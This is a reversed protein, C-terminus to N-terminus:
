KKTHIKFSQNGAKVVVLSVDPIEISANGLSSAKTSDLLRGDISYLMVPASADLGSIVLQNGVTRIVVRSEQTKVEEVGTPDDYHTFRFKFNWNLYNEKEITYKGKESTIILSTGSHSIVPNTDFLFYTYRAVRIGDQDAMDVIEIANYDTAYDYHAPPNSAKPQDEVINMDKWVAAARYAKGSGAPVHVNVKNYMWTANMHFTKETIPLPTQTYLYLDKLASTYVLAEDEISKVSAPITLKTLENGFAHSRISTVTEPVGVSYRVKDEKFGPRYNPCHVLTRRAKDYLIGQYASYKPNNEDVIYESMMDGMLAESGVRTLGAPITITSAKHQYFAEAGIEKLTSAFQIETLPVNKFASAGIKEVGEEMKVSNLFQYGCFAAEHVEKISAPIVIDTVEQEGIYLRTKHSKDSSWIPNSLFQHFGNELINPEFDINLWAEVSPITVKEIFSNNFFASVGIRRISSPLNVEKLYSSPFAMEGIETVSEPLTIRTVHEKVWEDFFSDCQSPLVSFASNRVKMVPYSKGDKQVTEPVVVDGYGGVVVGMGEPTVNVFANGVEVAALSPQLGIYATQNSSFDSTLPNVCSLLYYGDGAGSWGFNFHFYGDEAYGDCVFAHGDNNYGFSPNGEMLFPRGADLEQRMQDENGKCDIIQYDPSYGFYRIMSAVATGINSGTGRNNSMKAPACAVHCDFILKAVNDIETDTTPHSGGMANWQYVSEGFNVKYPRSYEQVISELETSRGLAYDLVIRDIDTGAPTDLINHLHFGRGRAPYKWYAMLQAMAAPVCGAAVGAFSEFYPDIYKAYEDTQNWQVKVLPAVVVNPVSEVRHREARRTTPLQNLVMLSQRAGNKVLQAMRGDALEVFGEPLAGSATASLSNSHSYAELLGKLQVPAKDYDFTGNDSWGLVPYDTNVNGNVVVFGGDDGRNIVYLAANGSEKPAAYSVSMVDTKAARRTNTQASSSRQAFFQEAIRLAEEQNVDQAWMTVCAVLMLAMTLLIKRM